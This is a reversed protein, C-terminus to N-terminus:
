IDTGRHILRQWIKDTSKNFLIDPDGKLVRWDNRAIESELQGPGWGAYGAYIRFRQDPKRGETMQKLLTLSNSIYVDDFVRDSEDPKSPSKIIMTIQHLAVPGGFYLNDTAKQLGKVNPLVHHLTTNTPRNIILGAAGRYSYNILLIITRAFHPDKLTESAVLFKGASLGRDGYRHFDESPQEMEPTSYSVSVAHRLPGPTNVNSVAFYASVFAVFISISIVPLLKNIFDRKKYM